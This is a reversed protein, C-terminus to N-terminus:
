GPPISIELERVIPSLSMVLFRMKRNMAMARSPEPQLLELTQYTMIQWALLNNMALSM